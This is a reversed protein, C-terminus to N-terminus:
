GDPVAGTTAYYNFDIKYYVTNPPLNTHQGGGKKHVISM